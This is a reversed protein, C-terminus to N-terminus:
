RGNRTINISQVVDKTRCRSLGRIALNGQQFPYHSLHHIWIDTVSDMNYNSNTIDNEGPQNSSLM